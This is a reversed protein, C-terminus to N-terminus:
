SRIQWGATIILRYACGLRERGVVFAEYGLTYATLDPAM